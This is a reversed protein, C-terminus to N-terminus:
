DAGSALRTRLEREAHALEGLVADLEEYDSEAYTNCDWRDGMEALKKGAERIMMVPLVREVFRGHRVVGRMRSGNALRVTVRVNTLVVKGERMMRQKELVEQRVREKERISQAPTVGVVAILAVILCSSYSM